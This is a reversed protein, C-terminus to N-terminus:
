IPDRWIELITLDDSMESNGRWATVADSVLRGWPPGSMSKIRDALQRSGFFENQENLAETVGDTILLLSEGPSLIIERQDFDAGPLIGLALGNLEPPKGFDDGAIWLPPLHGGRALQTKGTSPWYRAIIVTVFYGEEALLDFMANNVAALLTGVDGHSLAESRMKSWFAAMILAASLSKGSVDAVYVLWSGDPIPILDYLDGGVFTAPLSIAWAFSGGEMQPLEPWFLSQIRAAAELQIHFSKQKLQTELLRSRVIAVAALHAFSELIELDTIDFCPKGTSNLVEIVGLLEEGHLVPVALLTRTVFGTYEDAQKFFRSDSYVDEVIIPKRNEAVWGALGEGMKLKVSSKLTEATTKGSIEEKAITFELIDRKPNYLLLSSAEAGTVEMALDLLEPLLEDLSEVKALSQNAQILNKLRSSVGLETPNVLNMNMITRRM